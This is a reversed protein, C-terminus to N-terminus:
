AHRRVFAAAREIATQLHQEHTFGSKKRPKLSHDGDDLFQVDIADSLEYGGVEERTGFTDREGQLILTATRLERLHETRLTEPKGPPHFPYGFVVVCAAGLEDAVTTAVRGGMSKGGIAVTGSLSRFVEGFADQLKPLRDPGPRRGERRAAMYPFEFRVVRVGRAAIGTAVTQMWEHDMGAGAGHALLLTAAADDPGDIRLLPADTM